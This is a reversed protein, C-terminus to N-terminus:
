YARLTVRICFLDCNSVTKLPGINDQQMWAPGWKRVARPTVSFFVCAKLKKKDLGKIHIKVLRGLYLICEKFASSKKKTGLHLETLIQQGQLHPRKGTPECDESTRKRWSSPPKISHIHYILYIMYKHYIDYVQNKIMNEVNKFIPKGETRRAIGKEDENTLCINLLPM